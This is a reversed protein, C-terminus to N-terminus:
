RSITWRRITVKRQSDFILITRLTADTLYKIHMFSFETNKMLAATAPNFYASGVDGSVATAAEGM